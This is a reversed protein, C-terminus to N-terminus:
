EFPEITGMIVLGKEMFAIAEDMKGDRARRRADDLEYVARSKKASQSTAGSVILKVVRKAEMVTAVTEKQHGQKAHEIAEKTLKIGTALNENNSEASCGGCDSGVGAAVAAGHVGFLGFVAVLLTIIITKRM